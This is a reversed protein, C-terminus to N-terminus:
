SGSPKSTPGRKKMRAVWGSETPTPSGSTAPPGNPSTLSSEEPLLIESIAIEWAQHYEMKQVSVLEYLLDAFLNVTIELEEQLRNQRRLDEMMLPHYLSWHTLVLNSLRDHDPM